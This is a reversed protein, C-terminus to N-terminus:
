KVFDNENKVARAGILVQYDPHCYQLESQKLEHAALGLLFACATLVNGYTRITVNQTGFIDGFLRQASHDTFRWYDGWREMDYRSIQSIGPFTALLVGSPKLAKLCNFVATKAEFIFPLTQTLIICDFSVAPIGQGTALDGILTTQPNKQSFNLVDSHTIQNGGFKHTYSADGIELIRGKIDSHNYQLFDEIYYRDIPMGRDIGFVKSVPNLRRYTGRYKTLQKWLELRRVKRYITRM